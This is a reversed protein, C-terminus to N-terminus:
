QIIGSAVVMIAGIILSTTVIYFGTKTTKDNQFIYNTNDSEPNQKLIKFGESKNKM